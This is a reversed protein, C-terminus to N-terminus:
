CIFPVAVVPFRALGRIQNLVMFAPAAHEFILVTREYEGLRGLCYYDLAYRSAM